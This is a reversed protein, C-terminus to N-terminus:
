PLERGSTLNEGLSVEITQEAMEIEIDSLGIKRVIGRVTGLEISEREHVKVIRGDSRVSLWAERRGSKEIVATLFTVKAVDFGPKPPPPPAPKSPPPDKVDIMVKGRVSKAPLGDDTVVVAVEYRGLERPTWDVRGTEPDIKAGPLLPEDMTYTLQDIKDPDTSKLTFTVLRNPQGSQTSQTAIQPPRNPPGFLNRELIPTVLDALSEGQVHEPRPQFLERSTGAQALALADVAFTLDLTKTGEQPKVVLSRLRHLCHATEFDYLFQTLQPLTGKVRVEFPHVSAVDRIMRGALARVNADKLEARDLTEHLWKRYLSRAQEANGPLSRSELETLQASAMQGDRIKRRADRLDRELKTEAAKADRFWGRVTNFGIGVVFAGALGGVCLALVRERQTM